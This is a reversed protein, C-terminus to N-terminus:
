SAMKHSATDAAIRRLEFRQLKGSSSDWTQGVAVILQRSGDLPGGYLSAGSAIGACVLACWFKAWIAAKFNMWRKPAMNSIM